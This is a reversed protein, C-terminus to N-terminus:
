NQNKKNDETKSYEEFENEIHKNIKMKEEESLLESELEKEIEENSVNVEEREEIGLKEKIKQLDTEIRKNREYNSVVM